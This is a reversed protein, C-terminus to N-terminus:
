FALPWKFHFSNLLSPLEMNWHVLTAINMAELVKRIYPFQPILDAPAAPRNAKYDAYLQDRFTEGGTDFIVALWDPRYDKLFRFTMTTFGYIAQTPLGSSNTLRPLAFYARFIYSSGDILYLRPCAGSLTPDSM